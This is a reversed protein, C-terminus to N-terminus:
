DQKRFRVSDFETWKSAGFEYLVKQIDNALTCRWLKNIHHMNYALEKASELWYELRTHIIDIVYM